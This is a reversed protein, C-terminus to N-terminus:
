HGNLSKIGFFTSIFHARLGDSRWYYYYMLEIEDFSWNGFMRKYPAYRLGAGAKLSYFASLDYDSTYYTETLLHEKYPMFYKSGTQQYFRFSISPTLYPNVKYYTELEITNSFIDFDDAYFRYFTNLILSTGIYANLKIGLPIKIRRTPLNEVKAKDEDKFYVRHFPTSLLGTQIIVGPFFGISMRRNIVREIGLSLNYSYRMYIDFWNTDRLEVPYVLTVPRKYDDNLRGWRLDDFFAQFSAYYSTMGAKDPHYIWLNFGGSLFDSELSGSGTLGLEIQPKRFYRSYGASVQFHADQYSASSMNYDIRDTSASTIFDIGADFLITNTSDIEHSFSVHPAYVQLKETGTGGTVASHDGDQTYFSYLIKIDSESVKRKVYVSDQGSVASMIFLLLIIASIIRM